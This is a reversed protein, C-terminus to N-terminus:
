KIRSRCKRCLYSWNWFHRNNYTDTINILRLRKRQRPLKPPVAGCIECQNPEPLHSRIWNRLAGRGVNDGKWNYNKGGSLAAGIKRRTEETMTKGLNAIRLKMRFEKPRKKGRFYHGKRFMIPQKTHYNYGEKVELGCSCKCLKTSTM